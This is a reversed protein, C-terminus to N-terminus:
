NGAVAFNLAIRMVPLEGARKGQYETFIDTVRYYFRFELKELGFAAFGHVSYESLWDPNRLRVRVVSEEYATGPTPYVDKIYHSTLFNWGGVAGAEIYKGFYKKRKSYNHRFAVAGSLQNLNIKEKKHSLTDPFRNSPQRVFYSNFNYSLDTIFCLKKTLKLRYRAGFNWCPSKWNRIKLSDSESIGVPIGIEYFLHM